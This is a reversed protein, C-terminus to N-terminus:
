GIGWLQEFKARFDYNGQWGKTELEASKDPPLEALSDRDFLAVPISKTFDFPPQGNTM